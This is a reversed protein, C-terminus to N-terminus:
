ALTIASIKQTGGKPAALRVITNAPIAHDTTVATPSAGFRIACAADAWIEIIEADAGIANTTAGATGTFTATQSRLAPAQPLDAADPGPARRFESVYLSAM